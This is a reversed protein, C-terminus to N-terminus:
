FMEKIMNKEKKQVVFNNNFEATKRRFKKNILFIFVAGLFILFFGLYFVNTTENTEIVSSGTIQFIGQSLKKVIPRHDDVKIIDLDYDEKESNLTLDYNNSPLENKLDIFVKENLKLDLAIPIKYTLDDTKAEAEINNTYRVNGKNEIIIVGNEMSLKIKRFEKVYFKDSDELNKYISKILYEGPPPNELKINNKESSTLSNIVNSEMDFIRYSIELNIKIDSQDLIYANFIIEEYPNIEKNNIELIISKPVQLIRIEKQTEAKNGYKDETKIMIKKIGSSITDSLRINRSFIETSIIEESQEIVEKDNSFIITLKSNKESKGKIIITEGPNYIEKDSTFELNLMNKVIIKESEKEEIVENNSDLIKLKIQCEGLFNKNIDLSPIDVYNTNKNIPIKYFDLNYSTCFIETTLFYQEETNINIVASTDIKEGIKFEKKQFDKIIISASVLNLSIILLLMLVLKKM